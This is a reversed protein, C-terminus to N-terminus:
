INQHLLYKDLINLMEGNAVVLTPANKIGFENCLDKEKTADILDYEIGANGLVMKAMKCNPCTPTTFSMAKTVKTEAKPTHDALFCGQEGCVMEEKKVLKTSM